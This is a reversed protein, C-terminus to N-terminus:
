SSTLARTRSVAARGDGAEGVVEVDPDTSLVAALGARMLADDDVLLVRTM